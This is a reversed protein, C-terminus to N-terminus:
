NKESVSMGLDYRQPFMMRQGQPLTGWSERQKRAPVLDWRELYAEEITCSLVTLSTTMKGKLVSLVHIALQVIISELLICRSIAFDTTRTTELNDGACRTISQIRVDVKSKDAAFKVLKLHSVNTNELVRAGSANKMLLVPANITQSPSKKTAYFQRDWPVTGRTVM